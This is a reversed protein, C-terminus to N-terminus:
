IEYTAALTAIRAVFECCTKYDNSQYNRSKSITMGASNLNSYPDKLAHSRYMFSVIQHNILYLLPESPAGDIIDITSVGEQIIVETNKISNKTTNM